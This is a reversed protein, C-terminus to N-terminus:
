YDYSYSTQQKRKTKPEDDDDISLSMFEEVLPYIRLLITIGIIIMTWLTIVRWRSITKLHDNVTHNHGNESNRLLPHREM